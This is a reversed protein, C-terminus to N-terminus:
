SMHLEMMSYLSRIVDVQNKMLAILPSVVLATGKSLLAPLQFCLSKGAGTPMIVM